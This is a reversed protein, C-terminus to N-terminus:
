LGLLKNLKKKAKDEPTTAAPPQNDTSEQKPDDQKKKNLLSKLADERNGELLNKVADAKAGGAGELLKKQALATALGAFDIAYAPKAFTGTLKVPVTLGNLEQLDAGGQGKLSAVVTPKALYDLKEHAIDINGSGTIRFLPAKMSLDQNHAVGNQINFSAVMESFDTKKSKDGEVNSNGKLMNLKDKAGRLTGAIDIGKVAGDSLNLAAKGNLAQKFAGVTDGKTTVDLSLSGKGSLMDNNIADVLLPGVAIGKMDQKIAISPTARADVTLAGNMSGEYLNASFPSLEAVGSDAKLKIRVNTSKVNALKLWGIRLEGNANLQRLASLDIPADPNAPQAAAEKKAPKAESDTIYRDADVKDIDVDFNYIPKAFRSIGFKGKITTEDLKVNFPNVNLQEGDAKIGLKLGSLRYQEYIISGINVNGQLLLDKLASLDPAPENGKAATKGAPKEAPKAGATKSGLLKNLDLKDGNLNFRIDPKSFGAVAVDGKLKTDEVDLSFDSNVKEQKIDALLKLAFDGQAAGKPLAKDKIDIKGALKPLEFVLQELNGKFPSSFKSEVSREAQKISVEGNIGSSQLERPSGKIDALVLKAKLVDSGKEQSFALEAQEGSVTDKQVVLKPAAIDATLKAGDLNGSFALKLSNVLLEMNEPRADMDGTLRIDAGSVTAIDGKVVADLKSAAFHKAEIDAMFNGNLKVIANIKPQTTALQFDTALDFPTALAVRGTELNFKSISYESDTQEDRFNVASNSVNVGSIDFKIQESPEEEDQSLLDDFNTTGDKYRVINARAGDVYVTDVVLDKKLLPLLALSVKLGNVAAFEKDSNHESLSIRGLDAGLKPWFALKIDGEINLTRQKKDKVLKVIMPKYDNPNFTAAFVAVIIVLVLVFGGLGFLSYKLLKNM